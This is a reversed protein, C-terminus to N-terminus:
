QFTLLFYMASVYFAVYCVTYCYIKIHCCDYFTCVICLKGLCMKM